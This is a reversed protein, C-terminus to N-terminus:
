ETLNETSVQKRTLCLQANIIRCDGETGQPWLLSCFLYSKRDELDEYKPLSQALHENNLGWRGSPFSMIERGGGGRLESMWPPNGEEGRVGWGWGGFVNKCTNEGAHDPKGSTNVFLLPLPDYIEIKKFFLNRGLNTHMNETYSCKNKKLSM